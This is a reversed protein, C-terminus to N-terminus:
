GQHRVYTLDSLLTWSSGGDESRDVICRLKGEDIESYTARLLASAGSALSERGVLRMAGESYSGRLETVTGDDSVRAQRWQGLNVVQRRRHYGGAGGSSM